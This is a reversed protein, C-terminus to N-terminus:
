KIKKMKNGKVLYVNDSIEMMPADNLSDTYFNEIRTNPYHKKFSVVKNERFCFHKVKVTEMDLETGIYNKINLRRCIEKLVFEPTASLILDNDTRQRFYLMKIKRCNKNWYDKMDEEFNEIGRLYDEVEEAYKELAKNIPIMRLKYQILASFVKPGYKLLGPDKKLYYLFLDVGSEGRYITNDFDYVNM